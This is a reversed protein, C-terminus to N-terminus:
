CLRTALTEIVSLAEDDTVFVGLEAIVTYLAIAGLKEALAEIIEEHENRMKNRGM